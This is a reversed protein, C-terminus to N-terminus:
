RFSIEKPIGLYLKNDNSSYAFFSRKIEHPCLKKLSNLIPNFKSSLKTLFSNLELKFDTIKGIIKVRIRFEFIKYKANLTNISNLSYNKNMIIILFKLILLNLKKKIVLVIANYM